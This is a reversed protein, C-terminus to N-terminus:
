ITNISSLDFCRDMGPLYNSQWKPSGGIDAQIQKHKQCVKFAPDYLADSGEPWTQRIKREKRHIM